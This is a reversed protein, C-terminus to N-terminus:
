KWKAQGSGNGISETAATRGWIRVTFFVPEVRHQAMNLAM